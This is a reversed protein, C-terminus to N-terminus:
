GNAHESELFKTPFPLMSCVMVTQMARHNVLHRECWRKRDTNEAVYAQVVALYTLHDGQRRFLLQRAAQAEERMEETETHLFVSEEVDFCAVIDIVQLLCDMEPAAAALIVRALSPALPLRAMKKGDDSITGDDNLAGLQYLQLLAREMAERPPRTLLPFELPDDVGRAKMTLLAHSLDVRLIEPPTDKELEKFAKETYLRWCKGAAERGARGKRQTASSRSIPKVLLSALGLRPRYQDIKVKGSDIVFRVGSVTVSTEAINTALILKRTNPPAPEFIRQQASQTLAAYLPLVLLKISM